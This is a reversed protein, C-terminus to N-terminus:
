SWKRQKKLRYGFYRCLADAKDLRLSTGGRTFRILSARAIGTERALTLLPIGSDVIAKRLVDTLPQEQKNM